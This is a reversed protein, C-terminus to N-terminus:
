KIEIQGCIDGTWIGYFFAFYFKGKLGPSYLCKFFHGIRGAMTLQETSKGLFLM